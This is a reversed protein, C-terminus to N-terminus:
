GGTVARVAEEASVHEVGLAYHDPFERALVADWQAAIEAESTGGEAAPEAAREPAPHHQRVLSAAYAGGYADLHELLLLFRIMGIDDVDDIRHYASLDSCAAGFHPVMWPLLEAARGVEAM